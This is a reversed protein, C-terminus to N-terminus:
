SDKAKRKRKKFIAALEADESEQIHKFITGYASQAKRQLSVHDAPYLKHLLADYVIAFVRDNDPMGLLRVHDVGEPLIRPTCHCAQKELYGIVVAARHHQFRQAQQIDHLPIHRYPRVGTAHHGFFWLDWIQKVSINAPWDWGPPIFHVLRGDNWNWERWWTPREATETPQAPQAPAPQAASLRQEIQALMQAFRSDLDHLTLPLVGEVSFNRRIEEACQRALEAPLRTFVDEALSKQMATLHEVAATMEKMKIAMVLHPPVGTATLGTQQCVGVGALVGARLPSLIPNATFVRSNWLPHQDSLEDQLFKEHYLLSALLFPLCDKVGNPYHSYGDVITCWMDLTLLELAEYTFHPPLAGFNESTFPLGSAFRGCLQDSGEGSFFYADNVKGMSHGMRLQVAVVNPGCVQGTTYSATGKRFSHLGIHKRDCGLKRQETESLNQLSASLLKSIRNRNNSGVFLQHRHGAPRSPSSFLLVAWALIPCISPNLPNAYVHKWYKKAGTQDGKHGQEQIVMCDERWEIHGLMISEVSESRSMLNWALVLFFWAFTTSNWSGGVQRDAPDKKMFKKSLMDYGSFQLERKGETVRFLGRKKLNNLLKEYGDLIDKMQARTSAPIPIKPTRSKYLDLLASRYLGVSSFAAPEPDDPDPEEEDTLKSLEHARSCLFGFFDSLADDPIPLLFESLSADLCDRRNARFWILSDDVISRYRIKTEEVTRKDMMAQAVAAPSDAASAAM